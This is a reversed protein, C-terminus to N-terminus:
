LALSSMGQIKPTEFCFLSYPSLVFVVSRDIKGLEVLVGGLGLRLLYILVSCPVNYKLDVCANRPGGLSQFYIEAARCFVSM